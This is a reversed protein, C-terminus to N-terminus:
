AAGRAKDSATAAREAGLSRGHGHLRFPGTAAAVHCIANDQRNAKRDNFVRLDKELHVEGRPFCMYVAGQVTLRKQAM